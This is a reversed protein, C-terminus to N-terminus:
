LQISELSMLLDDLVRQLSELFFKVSLQFARGFSVFFGHEANVLLVLPEFIGDFFLLFLTRYSM